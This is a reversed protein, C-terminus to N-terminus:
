ALNRLVLVCGSMLMMIILLRRFADNQMRRFLAIGAQASLLAVPIAVALYSLTQIDYAGNFALMATGLSLVVFNFPQLVARIEAKEWDRVANWMMMLAGSLSAAGGFIGSIFGVLADAAPMSWTVRPLSRQALFFLGYIISIVGIVLKLITADLYTLSAVGIPVGLIGPILFWLLRRYNNRIATRVVWVGQVGVTISVALTIAVAQVPPMIHLWFGLAFLATGFGALGNIFGGCAAGLALFIYFGSMM